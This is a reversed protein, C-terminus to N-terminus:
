VRYTELTEEAFLDAADFETDILGQQYSFEIMTEITDRNAEVGYPWFNDGMLAQTEDLEDHVWPLTTSLASTRRIREMCIDKAKTLAKTLEQAIWPNERYVDKRLVVTHMIPFHGTRKYYDREVSRYDTFLREVSSTSFSSPTRATFLADIAGRELMASLTEDAPISSISLDPGLNVDLKEERGEEEEGGRYWTMDEPAVGYETRLIGRIWLPATMQYEPVGVTKGRLDEPDEIGSNTNVFICSHRFYRSPFVPIATFQPEGRDKAMMYSSMSMESADFEKYRLMRWFVEEVELPVFNLDIGAPEVRGDYLPQTRDSLSCALSIRENENSM